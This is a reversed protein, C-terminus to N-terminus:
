QSLLAPIDRCCNTCVAEAEGNHTIVRLSQKGCSPCVSKWGREYQTPESGTLEQLQSLVRKAEMSEGGMTEFGILRATLAQNEKVGLERM